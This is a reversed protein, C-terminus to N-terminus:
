EKENKAKEKNLPIKEIFTDYQYKRSGQEIWRAKKLKHLRYEYKDDVTSGKPFSLKGKDKGIKIFTPPNELLLIRQDKDNMAQTDNYILEGLIFGAGAGTGAGLTRFMNPDAADSPISNEILLAGAVAGVAALGFRKQRNTLTSCASVFLVLFIFLLVRSTQNM